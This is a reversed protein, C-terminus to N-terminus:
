ESCFLVQFGRPDATQATGLPNLQAKVVKLLFLIKPFPKILKHLHGRKLAIDCPITVMRDPMYVTRQAPAVILGNAAMDFFEAHATRNFKMQVSNKVTPKSTLM